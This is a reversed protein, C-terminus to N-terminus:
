KEKLIEDATVKALIKMTDHIRMQPVKPTLLQLDTCALVTDHVGAKEFRKIIEILRERDEQTCKDRVLKLIIESLREQELDTTSTCEVECSDLLREYLKNDRTTRTSLIGVRKIGQEKLFEAVAEIISLFPIRVAGTIDGTFVHLSNCLMVIFDAGATELKKAADILLQRTDARCAGHLIEDREQEYTIPVNYIILPPRRVSPTRQCLLILELYFKSTTEPGLGGIIGATKM